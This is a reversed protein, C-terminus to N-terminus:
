APSKRRTLATLHELGQNVAGSIVKFLAVEGIHAESIAKFVYAIPKGGPTMTVAEIEESGSKMLNVPAATNPSPLYDAIFNMMLRTGANKDASVFLIPFLAQERIAKNFGKQFEDPTLEGKDFFKSSVQITITM